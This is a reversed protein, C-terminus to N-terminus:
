FCVQPRSSAFELGTAQGLAASLEFYGDETQTERTALMPRGDICAEIASEFAPMDCCGAERALSPLRALVLERM